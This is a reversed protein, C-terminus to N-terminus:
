FGREIRASKKLKKEKEEKKQFSPEKGIKWKVKSFFDEIL